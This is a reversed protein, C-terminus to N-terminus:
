LTDETYTSSCDNNNKQWTGSFHPYPVGVGLLPTHMQMGGYGGFTTGINTVYQGVPAQEM